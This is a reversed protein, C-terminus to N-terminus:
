PMLALVDARRRPGAPLAAQALLRDGDLVYV